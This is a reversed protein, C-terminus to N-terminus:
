YASVCKKNIDDAYLRQPILTSNSCNAICYTNNYVYFNSACSSVCFGSLTDGFYGSPCNISCSNTSSNVFMNIGNRFCNGVCIHTAEYKYFNQPCDAVCYGSTPDAYSLIGSCSTECWLSNNNAYGSAM